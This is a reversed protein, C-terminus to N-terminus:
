PRVFAFAASNRRRSPRLSNVGGLVMGSHTLNQLCSNPPNEIRSHIPAIRQKKAYLM